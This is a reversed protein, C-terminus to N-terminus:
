ELEFRLPLAFRVKVPQGRQRGPKFKAQRVAKLAEECTGGGPDRACFPDQVRGNEDVVFQVFVTGEIGAQLAIPPYTLRSQIAEIGGVIEPPDEVVVFIETETAKPEPDPEPAPPPPPAPLAAVESFNMDIDLEIVDEIEVDDSVAIPAIPRPPPLEHRTQEIEEVLVIEQEHDVVIDFSGKQQMPVTFLVTVIALSLALSLEFTISYRSRLDARDSKHVVM